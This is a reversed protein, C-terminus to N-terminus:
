RDPHRRSGPGSLKRVNRRCSLVGRAPAPPDRWPGKLANKIHESVRDQTTEVKARGTPQEWSEARVDVVCRAQVRRGFHLDRNHFWPQCCPRVPRPCGAAHPRARIPNIASPVTCGKIPQNANCIPTGRRRMRARIIGPTQRCHRNLVRCSGATAPPPRSPQGERQPLGTFGGPPIVIPRARLRVALGTLVTRLRHDARRQPDVSGQYPDDIESDLLCAM